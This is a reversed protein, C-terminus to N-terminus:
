DRRASADRAHGSGILRSLLRVPATMRWSSSQLLEALRRQAEAAEGSLMEAERERAQLALERITLERTYRAASTSLKATLEDLRGFYEKQMTAKELSAHEKYEILEARLMGSETALTAMTERTAHLATQFTERELRRSDNLSDIFARVAAPSVAEPGLVHRFESREAFLSFLGRFAPPADRLLDVMPNAGNDPIQAVLVEATAGLSVVTAPLRDTVFRRIMSFESSEMGETNPVVLVAGPVMRDVWKQLYQASRAKEDSLRLHLLDIPPFGKTSVVDDEDTIGELNEVAGEVMGGFRTASEAILDNLQQVRTQRERDSQGGPALLVITSKNPTEPRQAARWLGQFTSDVEFGLDVTLEPSLSSVLWSLFPLFPSWASNALPLDDTRFIAELAAADQALLSEVSKSPSPDSSHPQPEITV